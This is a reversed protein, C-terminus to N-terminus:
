GRGLLRQTGRSHSCQLCSTGGFCSLGAPSWSGQRLPDASPSLLKAPAPADCRVGARSDTALLRQWCGGRGVPVSPNSTGPKPQGSILFESQGQRQALFSPVSSGEGALNGCPEWAFSGKGRAHLMRGRGAQSVLPRKGEERRLDTGHPQREHALHAPLQVHGPSVTHLNIPRHHLCSGPM